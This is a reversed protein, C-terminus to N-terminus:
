TIPLNLRLAINNIFKEGEQKVINLKLQPLTILINFMCVHQQLIMIWTPTALAGFSAFTLSFFQKDTGIELQYYEKIAHLLTRTPTDVSYLSVLHRIAQAIVEIELSQLNLRGLHTPASRMALPFTKMVGLEPQLASHLKKLTNTHSFSLVPAPYKLSPQQYHQCGFLIDHHMLNSAILNAIHGLTKEQFLNSIQSHQHALNIPVGILIRIQNVDM